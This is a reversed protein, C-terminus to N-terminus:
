SYISISIKEPNEIELQKLAEIAHENLKKDDPCCKKTSFSCYMDSERLQRDFKKLTTWSLFGTRVKLNALEEPMDKSTTPNMNYDYTDLLNHNKKMKNELGIFFEAIDQLLMRKRPCINEISNLKNLIQTPTATFNPSNNIKYNNTKTLPPTNSQIKM